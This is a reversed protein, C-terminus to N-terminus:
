RKGQAARKAEEIRQNMDAECDKLRQMEAGLINIAQWFIEPQDDIGGAAPLLGHNQYARLCRLIHMEGPHAPIWRCVPCESIEMVAFAAHLEVVRGPEGECNWYEREEDTLDRHTALAPDGM